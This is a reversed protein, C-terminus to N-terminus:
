CSSSTTSSTQKQQLFLSIVKFLAKGLEDYGAVSLHVKDSSWYVGRAKDTATDLLQDSDLYAVMHSCNTAFARIGQNITVRDVESIPWGPCPPVSIAVSYVPDLKHMRILNALTKKADLHHGLDNTGGLIIVFKLNKLKNLYHILRHMMGATKEGNIGSEYVSM